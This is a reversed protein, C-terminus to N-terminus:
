LALIGIGPALQLPLKKKWQRAQGNIGVAARDTAMMQIFARQLLGHTAGCQRATYMFPDSTMRQSVTEGGVQQLRIVIDACHLLQKTMRMNGGGHDIGMYKVSGSNTYEARQVLRPNPASLALSM